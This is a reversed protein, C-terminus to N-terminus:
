SQRFRGPTGEQAIILWGRVGGCGLRWWCEREGGKDERIRPGMGEGTKGACIRAGEGTKGAFLRGEHLRPGSDMGEGTPAVRTTARQLVIAVMRMGECIMGGGGTKGVFPPFGDRGGYPCTESGGDGEGM